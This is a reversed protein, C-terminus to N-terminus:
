SKKSLLSIYSGAGEKSRALIEEWLQQVLQPHAQDCVLCSLHVGSNRIHEIPKLEPFLIFLSKLLYQCIM